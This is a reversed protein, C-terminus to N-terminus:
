AAGGPNSGPVKRKGPLHVLRQAITYGVGVAACVHCEGVKKSATLM